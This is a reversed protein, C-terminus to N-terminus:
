SYLIFDIFMLREKSVADFPSNHGSQICCNSPCSSAQFIDALCELLGMIELWDADDIPEPGAWFNNQTWCGRVLMVVIWARDGIRVERRGGTQVRGVEEGGVEPRCIGAAASTACGPAGVVIFERRGSSLLQLVLVLLRKTRRPLLPARDVIPPPTRYALVSAAADDGDVVVVVVVSAASADAGAATSLPACCVLPPLRGRAM